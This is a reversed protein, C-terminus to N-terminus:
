KEGYSSLKRRLTNLGIDLRRATLSKNRDLRRYVKLIHAKEVQALTLIPGQERPAEAEQARGANRVAEPLCGPVIPGSQALNVASQIIARLERINGPYDHHMLLAMAQVDVRCRDKEGCFEDLFLNILPPIDARRERLPPLHLWGGRLRYYLDQRFRRQEILQDMDENTAAIIRVDARRPQNTGIKMYEGDQLVRLLKGQLSVPLIGIEDLFLTGGDAYELYGIRAKDAGTFAGKAHGFFEADFLSETVAAMNVTTMPRSARSSARHVAKALLEKGTGSEGTILIPVDSHAHLEAEKLVKLVNRSRTVIGRFPSTDTLKPLTKKKDIDLLDLLHKRELARNVSLTLNERSVPKVLYDYAGKRICAVAVHVENVATVMICETDPSTNKIRDLLAMGNMEPMNVDILALHFREGEAFRQAAKLADAEITIDHFGATSLRRRLIDLYDPDDDIVIISDDM